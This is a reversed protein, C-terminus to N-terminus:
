PNVPSNIIESIRKIRDLRRARRQEVNPVSFYLEVDGFVETMPKNILKCIAEAIKKSSTHRSIVNSIHTKSCQFVEALDALVIEDKSLAQRIEAATLKTRSM